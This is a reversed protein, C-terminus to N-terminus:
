SKQMEVTYQVVGNWYGDDDKFRTMFERKFSIQTYGAITLVVWGAGPSPELLTKLKALIDDIETNDTDDSYIHVDFPVTETDHDFTYAPMTDFTGVVAYPLTAGQPAENDYWRGGIALYLSNHVSETLETVKTYLGTLVAEIM